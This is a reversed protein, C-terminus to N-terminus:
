AIFSLIMKAGPALPVSSRRMSARKPVFVRPVRTSFAVPSACVAGFESIHGKDCLLKVCNLTDRQAGAFCTDLLARKEERGIEPSRLIATFRANEDFAGKITMLDGLAEKQASKERVVSYLAEAYSAALASM